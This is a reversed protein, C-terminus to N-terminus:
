FLESWRNVFEVDSTGTSTFTFVAYENPALLYNFKSVDFNLSDTKGLVWADLFSAGVLSVTATTNIEMNSNATDIDSWAGGTPASALKYLSIKVTKTGDVALGIKILLDDIKNNAGGYTLKNHFTILPKDTGATVGVVSLAKSFERSSSDVSGAGDITGCYVSGVKGVINTNNGTNAVEIRLPLYPNAIHTLAQKNSVDYVHFTIWGKEHGGYVQYFCPAIGLYGYNIRFINMNQLNLTFGSKGTGDLKDKNFDSQKIFTDSTSRRVGIGFDVGNMGIFFGDNVDFLGRYDRSNAKGISFIATFMAEADRGASYRLNDKAQISASGNVSTGTQVTLMSDVVSVSGGNATTIISSRTDPPYCFNASVKPLRHCMFREGFIGNFAGNGNADHTRTFLVGENSVGVEVVRNETDTGAILHTM